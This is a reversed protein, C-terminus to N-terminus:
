KGKREVGQFFSSFLFPFVPMEVLDKNDLSYIVDIINKIIFILKKCILEFLLFSTAIM